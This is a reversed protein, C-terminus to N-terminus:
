LGRMALALANTIKRTKEDDKKKKVGTEDPPTFCLGRVRSSDASWALFTNPVYKNLKSNNKRSLSASSLNVRLRLKRFRQEETADHFSLDLAHAYSYWYWSPPDIKASYFTITREVFNLAM